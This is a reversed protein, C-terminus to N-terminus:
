DTGFNWWCDKDEVEEIRLNEHDKMLKKDNEDPNILMKNLASQANEYSKGCVLVLCGDNRLFKVGDKQAYVDGVIIYEM